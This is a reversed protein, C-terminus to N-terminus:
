RFHYFPKRAAKQKRVERGALMDDLVKKIESAPVAFGMGSFAGTPSAIATNIGIVEGKLNLLPGGSNGHNIAADTQILSEYRMGEVPLSANLASIIGSTVSQKFGFPYGVALVFDGVKLAASGNLDLSTFPGDGKIKLLSLDLGPASAVVYALWEKEVGDADQTVIKIRVADEVVHRNTLIYGRKDIIVGSGIGASHYRYLREYPIVYGFFYEPEWVSQTEEKIVQVSVVAPGAKAAADNFAKQLGALDQAGAPAQFLTLALLLLTGM